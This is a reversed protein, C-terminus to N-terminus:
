DMPATEASAPPENAAPHARGRRIGYAELIEFRPQPKRPLRWETPWPLEKGGTIGRPRLFLTVLLVVALVLNTTGSPPNTGLFQNVEWRRFIEFVVTVLYCGIVAGTVSTMGGVVLMAIPLLVQDFGNTNFYFDLYSFTVFYHAYLAGAVGCVFASLVWAIGRERPVQVGVSRAARENERSARLRLGFRSQQFLFALAIAVLVWVTVSLLTTTTPVGIQTSTGRTISSTQVIFVNAIVLLALTAIGAQVGDLRVIAPSIILAFLAAFGGGVLTGELPSLEAPFVWSTLWSPMTLYTFEKIATPITLLASTYAGIAVFTVHGFSLVGSNGSFIQLGLVVLLLLLMRVATRTYVVDGFADVLAWTVVVFSCLALPAWLRRALVELSVLASVGYNEGGCRGAQLPAV